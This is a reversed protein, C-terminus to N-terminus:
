RSNKSHASCRESTRYSGQNKNSGGHAKQDNTSEEKPVKEGFFSVRAPPNMWDVGYLEFERLLFRMLPLAMEDRRQSAGSM